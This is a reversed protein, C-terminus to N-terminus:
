WWRFRRHHQVATQPRSQLGPSSPFLRRNSKASRCGQVQLSSQSYMQEFKSQWQEDTVSVVGDQYFNDGLVLVFWVSDAAAKRAMEQAIMRQGKGGSGFDGVAIFQVHQVSSDKPPIAFKPVPRANRVESVIVNDHLWAVTGSCEGFLFLLAATILVRLVVSTDKKM